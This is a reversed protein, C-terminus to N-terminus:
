KLNFIISTQTPESVVKFMSALSAYNSISSLNAEPIADPQGLKEFAPNFTHAVM